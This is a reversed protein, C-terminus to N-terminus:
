PLRSSATVRSCFASFSPADRPRLDLRLQRSELGFVLGHPDISLGRDIGDRCLVGLELCAQRAAQMVPVPQVAVPRHGCAAAVVRSGTRGLWAAGWPSGCPPMIGDGPSTFSILKLESL